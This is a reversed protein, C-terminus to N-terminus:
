PPLIDLDSSLLSGKRCLGPGAPLRVVAPRCFWFTRQVEAPFFPKVHDIM